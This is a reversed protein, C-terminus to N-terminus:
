ERRYIEKIIIDVPAKGGYREDNIREFLVDRRHLDAYQAGMLSDPREHTQQLEVEAQELVDEYTMPLESNITWPVSVPHEPEIPNEIYGIVVYQYNQPIAPNIGYSMPLPTSTTGLQEGAAHAREVQRVLTAITSLDVDQLNPFRRQLAELSSLFLDATHGILSEITHHAGQEFLEQVTYPM